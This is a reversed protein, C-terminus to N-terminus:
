TNAMSANYSMDLVELNPCCEVGRLTRVQNDYLELHRRTHDALTFARTVTRAQQQRDREADPDREAGWSDSDDEIEDESGPAASAPQNDGAPPEDYRERELHVDAAAMGPYSTSQEAAPFHNNTLRLWIGTGCLGRTYATTVGM